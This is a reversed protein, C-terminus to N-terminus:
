KPAFAFYAVVGAVVTLVGLSIYGAQTYRHSGAEEALADRTWTINDQEELLRRFVGPIFAQRSSERGTGAVYCGGFLLAEGQEPTVARMVVRGLRRSRERVHSMMRYLKINGRVAADLTVGGGEHAFLKYAWTPVLSQCIWRVAEEVKAPGQAPEVDPVLPFRQGVRRQRQDEPFREIFEGFGPVGELDTVMAFVPCNIQLAARATGLDRQCILGTDNADEDSDTASFPVLVMIGNIPCYPRREQAILRCLYRLRSTHYEIQERNKLLSGHPKRSRLRLQHKEEETLQGPSRGRLRAEELIEVVEKANGRPQMTKFIEDADEPGGTVVGEASQQLSPDIEGGLLAAHKGLLSAGPCSVFIADRSAYVHIPAEARRPAQQVQFPMQAARFLAEEGGTTRGIMLFLPADSWGIGQQRMAANIEEWAKAIDPHDAELAEPALLKWVYWGLWTLAIIFGVLISLWYPKLPGPADGLVSELNYRRSLWYAGYLIGAILVARIVWRLVPGLRRVEKAQSFLPFVMGIWWRANLITGYLGTLIKGLFSV